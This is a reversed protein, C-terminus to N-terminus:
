PVLCKSCVFESEVECVECKATFPPVEVDPTDVFSIEELEVADSAAEPNAKIASAEGVWKSVSSLSSIAEDQPSILGFSDSQQIETFFANRDEAKALRCAKVFLDFSNQKCTSGAAAAMNQLKTALQCPGQSFLSDMM